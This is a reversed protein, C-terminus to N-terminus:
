VEFNVIKWIIFTGLMQLFGALLLAYIGLQDTFLLRMYKANLILLMVMMAPPLAILIMASLRGQATRAKVERYIKFRDRIVRALTDLIEALNGGTEKQILVATVFFRVDLIPMRETFNMMADRFPLGFNQQEFTARFEGAVPDTLEEGIMEMGTSFAHGARVARGLLDLAEPFQEEFARFRRRRLFYVVGMPIFAMAVAIGASILHNHLFFSGAVYGVGALVGSILVIKGPRTQLGAQALFSRLRSVSSWQLLLRNLLPIDSLLEDRILQLEPSAGARKQAKQVAELRTSIVKERSPRGALLVIILLTLAVVVFTIFSLLAAM